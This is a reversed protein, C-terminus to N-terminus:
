NEHPIRITVRAGGAAGEGIALSATDGYIARLRDRLNTLGTGGRTTAAFGAGTDSVEIAVAGNERRARMAVEGGAVTPELGHVIANEVLPQLLMPQIAVSRLEAPVEIAYRLRAGMRVQLVDLYARLLEAEAGLTTTETRTAALSARLFRIFSELMRRATQPEPEILSAVNALTNYLFHPEIQAQLARLNAAVAERERRTAREREQALEMQARAERERVVFIVTLVVSVGLSVLMIELITGPEKLWATWSWEFILSAISFGVVVGLVPVAAFYAAQAIGGARRAAAQLGTVDFVWFLLHITYGIINSIVFILQFALLSPLKGAAVANIGYFALAFLGNWIFTYAFDRAFSCPIRRFFPIIELPHYDTRIAEM